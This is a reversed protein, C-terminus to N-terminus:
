ATSPFNKKMFCLNMSFPVTKRIFLFSTALLAFSTLVIAGIKTFLILKEREQEINM